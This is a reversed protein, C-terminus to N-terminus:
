SQYALVLRLLRFDESLQAVRQHWQQRRDEIEKIEGFAQAHVVTYSDQPYEPDITVKVAVEGPFFGSTIRVIEDHLGDVNPISKPRAFDADLRTELYAVRQELVAVTQRLNQSDSEPMQGTAM